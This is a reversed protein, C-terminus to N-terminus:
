LLDALSAYKQLSQVLSPWAGLDLHGVSCTSRELTGLCQSLVDSGSISVAAKSLEWIWADRAQTPVKVSREAAEPPFCPEQRILCTM